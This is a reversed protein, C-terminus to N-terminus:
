LYWRYIYKLVVFGEQVQMGIRKVRELRSLFMGSFVKILKVHIADDGCGFGFDLWGACRIGM